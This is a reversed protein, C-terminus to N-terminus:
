CRRGAAARDRMHAGVGDLDAVVGHQAVQAHDGRVRQYGRQQGGLGDADCAPGGVRGRLVGLDALLEAPRDTLELGDLVLAGLHDGVGLPGGRGHPIGGARDVFGALVIPVRREFDLEGGRHRRRQCRSGGLAARLIADLHVAADAEGPLVVRVDVVAPRQHQGGAEAAARLVRLFHDVGRRGGAHARHVDVQVGVGFFQPGLDAGLDGRELRHVRSCRM